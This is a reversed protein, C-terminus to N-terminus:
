PKQGSLWLLDYRGARHLDAMTAHHYGLYVALGREVLSDRDNGSIRNLSRKRMRRAM